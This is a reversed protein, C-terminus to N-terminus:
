SGITNEQLENIKRKMREIEFHNLEVWEYLKVQDVHKVKYKDVVEFPSTYKEFLDQSRIRTVTAKTVGYCESILKHPLGVHTLYRIMDIDFENLKGTGKIGSSKIVKREFKRTPLIYKDYVADLIKNTPALKKKSLM